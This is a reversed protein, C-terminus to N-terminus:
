DDCVGRICVPRGLAVSAARTAEIAHSEVLQAAWEEVDVWYRSPLADRLPGLLGYSVTIAHAMEHLM